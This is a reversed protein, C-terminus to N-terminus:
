VSENTQERRQIYQALIDSIERSAKTLGDPTFYSADACDRLAVLVQAAWATAVAPTDHSLTLVVSDPWFQWFCDQLRDQMMIYLAM